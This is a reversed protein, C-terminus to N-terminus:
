DCDSLSTEYSVSATRGCRLAVNHMKTCRIPISGMKEGQFPPSRVSLRVTCISPPGLPYRDGEKPTVLWRADMFVKLGYQFVRGSVAILRNAAIHKLITGPLPISGSVLPNDIWQEVESSVQYQYALNNIFKKVDKFSTDNKVM